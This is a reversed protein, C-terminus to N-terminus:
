LSCPLGARLGLIGSFCTGSDQELSLGLFRLKVGVDDFDAVGGYVGRRDSLSLVGTFDEDAIDNGIIGGPSCLLRANSKEM